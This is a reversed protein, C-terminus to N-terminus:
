LVFPIIARRQKPYNRFHEQYWHHMPVAALILNATVWLFILWPLESHRGYSMLLGAYIVIEGLYHPCSVLAFAGGTPLSYKTEQPHAATADLAQLEEPSGSGERRLRAAKLTSATRSLRDPDRSSSRRRLRALIWHSQLQVLSGAMFVACALWQGASPHPWLRLLSRLLQRAPKKPLQPPEAFFDLPLYSLPLTLYYSLGFLYALIHMSADSPYTQLFNSELLRRLLHCSLLLQALDSSECGLEYFHSFWAQPVCQDSFRGLARRPRKIWTKGRSSALKVADRFSNPIGPVLALVAAACVLTWYCRLLSPLIYWLPEAATPLAWTGM